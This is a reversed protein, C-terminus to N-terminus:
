HQTPWFYHEMLRKITLDISYHGHCHHGWQLARDVEHKQVCWVQDGLREVYAMLPYDQDDEILQYNAIKRMWWGWVPLSGDGADTTRYKGYILFHAM